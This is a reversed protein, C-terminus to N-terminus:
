ASQLHISRPYVWIRFVVYSLFTGVRLPNESELAHISCLGNFPRCVNLAICDKFFRELLALDEFTRSVM